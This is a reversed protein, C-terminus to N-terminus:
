EEYTATYKESEGIEVSFVKIHPPVIESLSDYIYKAINESTPNIKDFPPIENLYKHDLLIVIDTLNKKLKKFDYVIGIEDLQKSGLQVKISWNHGHLNECLGEYGRLKHASAFNTTASVKYM